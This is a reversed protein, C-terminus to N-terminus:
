HVNWSEALFERVYTFVSGFMEVTLRGTQTNQRSPHYSACLAPYPRPLRFFAGHKFHLTARLGRGRLYRVYTDFAVRGLALVVAVNRLFQLERTWYQQCTEIEKLTPKNRPPACRVVATMYADKLVLGDNVRESTSQNAFDFKHLMGVLFQASGDGTFMRGTRNGGHAAPALGLILLRAEPDGFGLLPKGWYEWERFQKRKVRAVHECYRRLRPCKRCSSVNRNLQSLSSYLGSSSM